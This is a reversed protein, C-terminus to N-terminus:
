AFIQKADPMRPRKDRVREDNRRGEKARAGFANFLSLSGTAFRKPRARRRTADEKTLIPTLLNFKASHNRRTNTYFQNMKPARRAYMITTYAAYVLVFSSFFFVCLLVSFGSASRLLSIYIRTRVRRKCFFIFYLTTPSNPLKSRQVHSSFKLRTHNM